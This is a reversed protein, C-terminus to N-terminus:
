AQSTHPSVGGGAGGGCPSVVTRFLNQSLVRKLVAYNMYRVGYYRTTDGRLFGSKLVKKPYKECQVHNQM